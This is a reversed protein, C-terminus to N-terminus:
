TNFKDEKSKRFEGKFLLRYLLNEYRRYRELLEEDSIKEESEIFFVKYEKPKRKGM